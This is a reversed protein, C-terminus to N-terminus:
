PGKAEALLRAVAAAPAAPSTRPDMEQISLGFPSLAERAIFAGRGALVALRPSPVRRLVQRVGSSIQSVQARAVHEAIRTIDEESLMEVDACVVRALRVGAESRSRGRGDPTECTYDGESVRGLWLHVDAVIAFHEAAVRCRSARLPVSRVVASVPTRLAGTYVLEGAQLRSPDDFASARVRGGAIPVIDTTTSGVDLFLADPSSAAVLTASAMWNAAAVVYPQLRADGVTQFRGDVGYVWAERGPFAREVADLVFGVGERKTRFCDALEATMTVAVRRAGGLDRAAEALVEHLRHPERWLAFPRELLSVEGGELRALKLNAGGVDLGLITV